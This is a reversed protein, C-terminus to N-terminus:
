ALLSQEACWTARWGDEATVGLDARGTLAAHFNELQEAQGKKVSRTSLGRARALGHVELERYDDLVFTAGGAFVEVREKGAGSSGSGTYVLTGVSGDAFEVTASADDRPAGGLGSGRVRVPPGGALFALFDFFHVAEGLMRGGGEVPDALWADPPLAGADVRYLMQRPSAIPVLLEKLRAAHPSFRRNFGVTLLAGREVVLDALRRADAASLAMPKEVFVAKGAEVAASAIPAHMDHRTAVYVVDIGPDAVLERWDTTGRDFGDKEVAARVTLGNRSCVSTLRFGDSAALLPLLVSRFYQGYGIVGARLVREATKRGSAVPVSARRRVMSRRLASPAAADTPYELLVGVPRAESAIAAYAEPARAVPFTADVLPAVKLDGAAILRLTEELNRGETWRVYAFPYDRGREEYDPDYRGPGYSTSIFFDIEKKYIRDRAIRIPVDGVLVVRGKKRCAECARNLMGADGGAATVIVADAGLGDTRELVGAVFDRESVAFGAGPELAGLAEARRVREPLVDVGITVCGSARLIQATLQGLLGLGLVVVRDGISPSARRVGQLAIAGVTAFAAEPFSVGDPVRAVLNEPVVNVAAHNAYGMGACAVRDGPSFRTVDPAVDLVVGSCSYGIPRDTSLRARVLDVTSKIGHSSVRDIVKRVLAPNRIARGVLGEKGGSGAAAAETGVSILSHSTRVLVAGARLAPEPVEVVSLEGGSIAVQLL